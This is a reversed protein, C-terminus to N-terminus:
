ETSVRLALLTKSYALTAQNGAISRHINSKISSVSIILVVFIINWPQWVTLNELLWLHSQVKLIQIVTDGSKTKHRNECFHHTFLKNYLFHINTLTSINICHSMTSLRSQKVHTRSHLRSNMKLLISRKNKVFVRPIDTITIYWTVM